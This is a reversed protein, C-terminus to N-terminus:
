NHARNQGAVFWYSLLAFHFLSKPSSDISNADINVFSCSLLYSFKTALCVRAIFLEKLSQSEIEELSVRVLERHKGGKRPNKESNAERSEM